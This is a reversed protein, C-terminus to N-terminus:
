ARARPEVYDWGLLRFVDAEEPCAIEEGDRSVGGYAHGRMGLERFRTMAKVNWDAPGTRVFLAMGWNEATVSFVDVPMDGRIRPRIPPMCSWSLLKNQRGFTTHGNVNPRLAWQTQTFPDKATEARLYGTLLDDVDARVKGFMDEQGDAAKPVALIEIDKVTTKRRRISGAIVLRECYPTLEEVIQDAWHAAYPWPIRAETNEPM